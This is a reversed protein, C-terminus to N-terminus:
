ANQWELIEILKRPLIIGSEKVRKAHELEVQNPFYPEKPKEMYGELIYKELNEILLDIDRIGFAEKSLGIFLQSCGMSTDPFKRQKKVEPSITNGALMGALVEAIISIGLGKYGGFIPICGGNDLDSPNCSANGDKDILWEKPINQGKTLASRIKGGAVIGTGLDVVFPEETHDQPCILCYTNSGITAKSAGPAAVSPGSINLLLGVVNNKQFPWRYGALSGIHNNNRIGVASIGNRVAHETCWEAAKNAAVQGFCGNADLVVVSGFQSILTPENNAKIGGQKIRELYVPLLGVGHSSHGRVEADILLDSVCKATSSEVGVGILTHVVLNYLEEKSFKVNNKNLNLTM